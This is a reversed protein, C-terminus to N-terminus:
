VAKGSSYLPSIARDYVNISKILTKPTNTVANDLYSYKTKCFRTAQDIVTRAGHSLLISWFDKVIAKKSLDTWDLNSDGCM